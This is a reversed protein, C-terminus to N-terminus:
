ICFAKSEDTSSPLVTFRFGWGLIRKYKTPAKLYDANFPHNLKKGETIKSGQSKILNGDKFDALTRIVTEKSAGVISALDERSM